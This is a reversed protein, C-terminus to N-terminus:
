YYYNNTTFNTTARDNGGGVTSTGFTPFPLLLILLVWRLGM